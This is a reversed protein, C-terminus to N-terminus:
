AEMWKRAPVTIRVSERPGIIPFYPHIALGFPLRQTADDNRVLWDMRVAGPTVTYTVQLTNTIPFLDYIPDGPAFAIRATLCARDGDTCPPDLQWLQDRVLGHIFHPGMNPQFAFPRGDFSMQGDHVRNPTPYLIPSGLVRPEQELDGAVIYDTGNVVFSLLNCGLAPSIQVETPAGGEANAASLRVTRWGSQRFPQDSEVSASM